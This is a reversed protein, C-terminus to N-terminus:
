SKDSADKGRQHRRHQYCRDSDSERGGWCLRTGLRKTCRRAWPPRGGEHMGAMLCYLWLPSGRTATQGAFPHRERYRHRRLIERRWAIVEPQRNLREWWKQYRRRASRQRSEETAM